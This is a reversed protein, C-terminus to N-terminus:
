RALLWTVTETETPTLPIVHIPHPDKRNFEYMGEWHELVERQKESSYMGMAYADFVKLMRIDNGKVSIDRTNDPLTSFGIAVLDNHTADALSINAPEKGMLFFYGHERLSQRTTIYQQMEQLLTRPQEPTSPRVLNLRREGPRRGSGRVGVNEIPVKVGQAQFPRYGESSPM